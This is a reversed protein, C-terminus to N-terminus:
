LISHCLANLTNADVSSRTAVTRKKGTIDRVASWLDKAGLGVERTEARVRGSNYAIIETGIRLALAGAAEVQGRRM